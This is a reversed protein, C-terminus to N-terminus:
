ISVGMVSKTPIIKEMTFGAAELLTQYDAATRERGGNLVM